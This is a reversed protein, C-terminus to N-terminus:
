DRTFTNYKSLGASGAISMNDIDGTIITSDVDIQLIKKKSSIIDDSAPRVSIRISQDNDNQLASLDVLGTAPTVFGIKNNVRVIKGDTGLRFSYVQRKVTDGPIPEDALRVNEGGVLIDSTSIMSEEQNIKGDFAFGFDAITTDANSATARVNKYAYVRATTNLISPSVGDIATVLNSHRYVGSFNNLRTQNYDILTQKIAASLSGASASTISPDYKFFIEFNIYTYEPDVLVPTLGIVKKKNLYAIIEDKQTTTLFPTATPKISIYVRGYQAPVETEGGWAAVNDIGTFKKMILSKYDDATVAREQAVFSLPANYKISDIGESPSGGFAPQVTTVQVNSQVGSIQGAKYQFVRAGNTVDGDSVLYSLRVLGSADPAKGFLNNGFRIEYSGDSNEDLFYIRSEGDVDPFESFLEYTDSNGTGDITPFVQVDLTSTDVKASNIVFRQDYSNDISYNETKTSGQKVNLNNFVFVQGASADIEQTVADVTEFVYTTDNISTIFQTGKPLTLTNATSGTGEAVRTFTVNIIATPATVSKPTYGLLKARSVVNGRVQASDLFSENMAMHANLANYHTNYALIDMLQDLSSGTFDYDSFAGGQRKFYSILNNKIQQFDLETTNFQQSM